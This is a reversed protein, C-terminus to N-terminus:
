QKAMESNCNTGGASFIIPRLENGVVKRLSDITLRYFGGGEFSSITGENQADVRLDGIAIRIMGEGLDEFERLGWAVQVGGRATLFCILWNEVRHLTEDSLTFTIPLLWYIQGKEDRLRGAVFHELVPPLFADTDVLIITHPSINEGLVQSVHFADYYEKSTVVHKGMHALPMYGATLGCM